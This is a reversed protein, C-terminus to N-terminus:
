IVLVPDKMWPWGKASLAYIFYSCFSEATDTAAELYKNLSSGLLLKSFAIM